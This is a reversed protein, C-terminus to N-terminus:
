SSDNRNLAPSMVEASVHGNNRNDDMISQNTRTMRSGKARKAKEGSIYETMAPPHVVIETPQVSRGCPRGAASDPRRRTAM